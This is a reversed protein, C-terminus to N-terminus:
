KNRAARLDMDQNNTNYVMLMERLILFFIFFNDKTQLLTASWQVQNLRYLRKDTVTCSKLCHGKTACPTQTNKNTKKEIVQNIAIRM